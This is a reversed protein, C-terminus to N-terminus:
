KSQLKRYNNMFLSYTDYMFTYINTLLCFRHLSFSKLMKTYIFESGKANRCNSRPRLVQKKKHTSLKQVKGYAFINNKLTIYGYM